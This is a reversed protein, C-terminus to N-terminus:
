RLDTVVWSSDLSSTDFFFEKGDTAPLKKVNSLTCFFGNEEGPFLFTGSLIGNEYKLDPIGRLFTEIDTLIKGFDGAREIYVEKFVPDKTWRTFSDCIIELGNGSLSYREGQLVASGKGTIITGTTTSYTYDCTIRAGKVMSALEAIFDQAFLGSSAMLTAAIITVLRRM